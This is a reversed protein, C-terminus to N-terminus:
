GKYKKAVAEALSQGNKLAASVSKKGAIASSIDQSVSTGLASFEPIDVFQIGITPRPQVGPNTPDASEIATKTADAFAKAAKLYDANSYTSARKGAPVKAWGLQAGVLEEYKQSSAWSVFKWANDANKSGKQIGWAWTYLWGSNKTKVVPATRLGDQRGGALGPGRSFGVM